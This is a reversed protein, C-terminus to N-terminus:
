HDFKNNDVLKESLVRGHGFCVPKEYIINMTNKFVAVFVYIGARFVLVSRRGIGDADIVHHAFIVQALSFKRDTRQAALGPFCSDALDERDVLVRCINEGLHPVQADCPPIRPIDSVAGDTLSVACCDLAIVEDVLENIRELKTM